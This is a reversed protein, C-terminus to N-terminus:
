ITKFIIKKLFIISVSYFLHPQASVHPSIFIAAPARYFMDMPYFM